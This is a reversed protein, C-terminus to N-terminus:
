DHERKKREDRANWSIMARLKGNATRVPCTGQIYNGFLKCVMGVPSEETTKRNSSRPWTNPSDWREEWRAKTRRCRRLLYSALASLGGSVVFGVNCSQKGAVHCQSKRLERQFFTLFMNGSEGNGWDPFIFVLTKFKAQTSTKNTKSKRKLEGCWLSQFFFLVGRLRQLAQATFCSCCVWM